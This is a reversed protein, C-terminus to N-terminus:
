ACRSAKLLTQKIPSQIPFIVSTLMDLRVAVPWYSPFNNKNALRQFGLLPFKHGTSIIQIYTDLTILRLQSRGYPSSFSNMCDFYVLSSMCFHVGSIIQQFSLRDLRCLGVEGTLYRSYIKAKCFRKWLAKCFGKGYM